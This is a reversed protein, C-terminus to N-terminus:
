NNEMITKISRWRYGGATKREGRLVAGISWNNVGMQKSADTICDFKQGTEVCEVPTLGNGLVRQSHVNNEQASCWELNQPINNLKNGDIHNVFTKERSPKGHFARCVLRHIKENKMSGDKHLGVSLYGGAVKHPIIDRGNLRYKFIGGDKHARMIIRPLSRVRGLNSIQYFGEYGIIDRWEEEESSTSLDVLEPTKRQYHRNCLGKAYVKRNCGLVSCIKM